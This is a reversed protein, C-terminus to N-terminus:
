TNKDIITKIGDAFKTKATWGVDTYLDSVDACLYTVQKASYPIAGFNLLGNANLANAIVTIYDKLPIAQGSGLVYVKGNKGKEGLLRFAEAADGSYLYDWLQEAKTFDAKQGNKLKNITSAVMTQEGDNPGYISLVRVWVHKIGLQEAYIRSTQGACLKAIGYGNEPFCPTEPSLKGNVRGYEAQSGAGIFTSCGFRKAVGVADLTYRVNQEQTYVDNRGNGFTKDWAFHYFVDYTRGSLNQLNKLGDLSCFIKSVLPSDPLVSNRASGERCIVLVEVGCSILEGILATGIVGTAGTIIARKM